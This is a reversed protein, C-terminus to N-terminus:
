KQYIPIVHRNDREFTDGVVMYLYLKRQWQRLM